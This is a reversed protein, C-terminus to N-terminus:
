HYYISQRTHTSPMAGEWDKRLFSQSKIFVKITVSKHVLPIIWRNRRGLTNDMSDHSLTKLNLPIIWQKSIFSLQYSGTKNM